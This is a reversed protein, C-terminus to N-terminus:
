LSKTKNQKQWNSNANRNIYVGLEYESLGWVEPKNNWHIQWILIPLRDKQIGSLTPIGNTEKNRKKKETKAGRITKRHTNQLRGWSNLKLLEIKSNIKWWWWGPKM